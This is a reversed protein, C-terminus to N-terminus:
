GLRSRTDVAGNHVEPLCPLFSPHERQQAWAEQQEQERTGSVRLLRRGRSRHRRRGSRRRRDLWGRRAFELEIALRVGGAPFPAIAALDAPARAVM